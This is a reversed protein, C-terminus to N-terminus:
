LSNKAQESGANTQKLKNLWARYFHKFKCRNKYLIGNITAESNILSLRVPASLTSLEQPEGLPHFRAICSLDQWYQNIDEAKDRNFRRAFKLLLQLKFKM